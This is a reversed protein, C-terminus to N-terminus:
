NCPRPTQASMRTSTSATRLLGYVAKNRDYLTVSTDGAAKDLLHMARSVLAADVGQSELFANLLGADINRNGVRDIWNGLYDYGLTDCFLKIVRQQTKKETQGVTSM